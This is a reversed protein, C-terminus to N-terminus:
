GGAAGAIELPAAQLAKLEGLMKQLTEHSKRYEAIAPDERGAALSMFTKMGEASRIDGVELADNSRGNLASKADEQFGRAEAIKEELKGVEDARKREADSVAKVSEIQKKFKGNLKEAAAAFTESNIRGDQLQETLATLGGEYEATAAAGAAGFREAAETAKFFADTQKAVAQTNGQEMEADEDALKKAAAARGEMASIQEDFAKRAKDAAQGYSTENLIGAELEGQLGRLAEQYQVAANFGAAGYAQAKDIATSIAENQRRIAATFDDAEETAAGAEGPGTGADLGGAAAKAVGGENSAFVSGVVPMKSLYNYATDLLANFSAIKKSVWDFAAGLGDKLLDATNSLGVIFPSLLVSAVLGGVRLVAGALSGMVGVTRLAGSILTGILSGVPRFVQAIPTLLANAGATLDALGNYLGAFGSSIGELLGIFASGITRTVGAEATELRKAAAESKSMAGALDDFHKVDLASIALGMAILDERAVGADLAKQINMNQFTQGATAAELQLSAVAKATEYAAERSAFFQRTVNIAAMALGLMPNTLGLIATSLVGTTGGAIAVGVGFLKLATAANRATAVVKIGQMVFKSFAKPEQLASWLQWQGYAAAMSGTWKVAAGATDMIKDALADIGGSKATAAEVSNGFKEVSAAAGGASEEAAQMEKEAKSVARGYVEQTILGKSLFKDLKEVKEAYKEAPTRVSATIRAAMALEKSTAASSVELRQLSKEAQAIGAAMGSANATIRFALHQDAM